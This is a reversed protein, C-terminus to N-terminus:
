ASGERRFRTSGVDRQTLAGLDLRAIRERDVLFDLEVLRGDRITGTGISFPQGRLFSVIGVAGNVLVRHVDLDVRAQQGESGTSRYGPVPTLPV